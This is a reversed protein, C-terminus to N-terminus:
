ANVAAMENQIKTTQGSVVGLLIILPVLFLSWRIFSARLQWRSAIMNM